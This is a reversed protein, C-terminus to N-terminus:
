FLNRGHLGDYSVFIGILQAVKGYLYKKEHVLVEYTSGFRVAHM